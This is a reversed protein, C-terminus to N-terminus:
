DMATYNFVFVFAFCISFFFFVFTHSRKNRRNVHNTRAHNLKKARKGTEQKTKINPTNRAIDTFNGTHLEPPVWRLCSQLERTLLSCAACLLLNLNEKHINVTLLDTILTWATQYESICLQSLLLHENCWLHLCLSLLIELKM